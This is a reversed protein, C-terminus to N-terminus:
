KELRMEKGYIEMHKDMMYFLMDKLILVCNNINDNTIEFSTKVFSYIDYIREGFIEALMQLYANPEVWHVNLEELCKLQGLFYECHKATGLSNGKEFNNTIREIAKKIFEFISIPENKYEITFFIDMNPQFNNNFCNLIYKMEIYASRIESIGSVIELDGAVSKASDLDCLHTFEHYLICNIENLSLEEVLNSIQLIYQNDYVIGSNEDESVAVTFYPLICNLNTEYEDKIKEVYNTIESITKM